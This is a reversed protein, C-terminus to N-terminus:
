GFWVFISVLKGAFAIKLISGLAQLLLVLEEMLNVLDDATLSERTDHVTKAYADLRKIYFLTKDQMAAHDIGDAGEDLAVTPTAPEDLSAAAMEAELKAVEEETLDPAQGEVQKTAEVM